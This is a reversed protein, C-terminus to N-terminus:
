EACGGSCRERPGTEGMMGGWVRTPVVANACRFRLVVCSEVHRSGHEMQHWGLVHPDGTYCRNSSEGPTSSLWRTTYRRLPENLAGADGSVTVLDLTGIPGLLM